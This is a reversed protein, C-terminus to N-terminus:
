ADVLAKLSRRRRTDDVCKTNREVDAIIEDFKRAYGDGSDPFGQPAMRYRYLGWPTIFTAFHRNEEQIPVLHLGNWSLFSSPFVAKAQQFLPKGNHSELKCSANLPSLDVTRRQSGDTEGILVKELVELRVDNDLQEKPGDKRSLPLLIPTYVAWSITDPNVHLSIATASM